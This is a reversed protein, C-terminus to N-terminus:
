KVGEFFLTTEVIGQATKIGEESWPLQNIAGIFSFDELKWHLYGPCACNIKGARTRQLTCLFRKKHCGDPTVYECYLNEHNYMGQSREWKLKM